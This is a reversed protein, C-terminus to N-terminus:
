GKRRCKGASPIALMLRESGTVTKDCGVATCAMIEVQYQFYNELPRGGVQDITQRLPVENLQTTKEITGITVPGGPLISLSNESQHQYENMKIVKLRYETITGGRLRPPPPYWSLSFSRGQVNQLTVGSLEQTSRLPGKLFCM